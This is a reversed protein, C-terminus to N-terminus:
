GGRRLRRGWGGRGIPLAIVLAYATGTRRNYDDLKENYDEEDQRRQEEQCAADCTQTPTTTSSTTLSLVPTAPFLTDTAPLFYESLYTDPFSSPNFELSPESRILSTWTSSAAPLAAATTPLSAQSSLFISM